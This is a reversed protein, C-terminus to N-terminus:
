ALKALEEDLSDLDVPAKKARKGGKRAPGQTTRRLMALLKIQESIMNATIEDQEKRWAALAIEELGAPPCLTGKAIAQRREEYEARLADFRAQLVLPDEDLSLNGNSLTLSM